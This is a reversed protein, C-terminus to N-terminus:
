AGGRAWGRWRSRSRFDIDMIEEGVLFAYVDELTPEYSGLVTGSGNLFEMAEEPVRLRAREGRIFVVYRMLEKPVTDARYDVEIVRGVKRKLLDSTGEAVIRGGKIVYIYDALGEVEGMYHSTFLVAKGRSVVRVLSRFERASVPDLGLTPEDLLLVPPDHILARALALRRQMGLSYKMYQVNAWRSLGVLQLLERAKAKVESLGMDYLSGFFVLNEYGTLRYYFLREGTLVLGLNRRVGKEERTVDYGMVYAKGSTPMLLTALIKILTTKGAGNPGVLAVAAGRRVRLNVGNLAKVVLDKVRFIRTLDATEVAEM